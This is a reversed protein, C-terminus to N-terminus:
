VNDKKEEVAPFYQPAQERRFRGYDREVELFQLRLDIGLHSRNALWFRSLREGLATGEGQSALSFTTSYKSPETLSQYHEAKSGNINADRFLKLFQEVKLPTDTRLIAMYQRGHYPPLNYGSPQTGQSSSAPTWEHMVKGVRLRYDSFLEFRGRNQAEHHQQQSRWSALAAEDAWYSLSLLKRQIHISQSREISLFGRIRELESRLDKAIGLYTSQGEETPEVEFVVAFPLTSPRPKIPSEPQLVSGALLGIGGQLLERRNSHM